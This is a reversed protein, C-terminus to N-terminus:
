SDEKDIKPENDNSSEQSLEKNNQKAELKSLM